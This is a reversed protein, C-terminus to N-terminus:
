AKQLKYNKKRWYRRRCDVILSRPSDEKQADESDGSDFTKVVRYLEGDSGLYVNPHNKLARLLKFRGRIPDEHSYRDDFVRGVELNKRGGNYDGDGLESAMADADEVTLEELGGEEMANMFALADNEEPSEKKPNDFVVTHDEKKPSGDAKKDQDKGVAGSILRIYNERYYDEGSQNVDTM